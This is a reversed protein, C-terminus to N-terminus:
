VAAETRKDTQESRAQRSVRCVLRMLARHAAPFVAFFVDMTRRLPMPCVLPRNRELDRIAIRAFREPSMMKQKSMQAQVKGVDMNVGESNAFIPTDVFSPCLASVKVGFTEAEYHLSTTLGLVAHKTTAYAAATPAPGMATASSTNAIHGFGQQKMIPYAAQVGNIVGWLNVDVIRRWHAQTMDYLEGYLSIGANNFMYDLRGYEEYVSRVAEDVQAADTVDLRLFKATGGANEIEEAAKQGGAGDIDAIFVDIGRGALERAIARGIGSAAGTVIAVRRKAESSRRATGKEM